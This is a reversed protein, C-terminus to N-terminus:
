AHAGTHSAKGELRRLARGQMIGNWAHVPGLAFYIFGAIAPALDSKPFAGAIMLSSLAVLVTLFHGRFTYRLQLQEALSLGMKRRERWAHQYLLMFAGFIMVIGTSYLIMILTGNTVRPIDRMGVLRGLGSLMLFKLPYVYFLIVFLLYCNLATTWADQLGYRRFFVNHQHWIWCIMAFMASFPLFGRMLNLLEDVSKPVELSVVLLTLAFAFVADSFGELRTIEHRREQV